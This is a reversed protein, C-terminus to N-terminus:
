ITKWECVTTTILLAGDAASIEFAHNTYPNAGVFGEGFELCVAQSVQESGAGIWTSILVM